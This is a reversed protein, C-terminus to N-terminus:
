LDTYKKSNGKSKEIPYKKANKELKRTFAISIDISAEEVFQVIAILVHVLLGEIENRKELLLQRGTGDLAEELFMSMLLSAKCSIIMSQKELTGGYSCEVLKKFDSISTERDTKEILVPLSVSAAHTLDISATNAFCLVWFFCDALEDEVSERKELLVRQGGDTPQCFLFLELLEGAEVVLGMSDIKPSHFQYWDRELLFTDVAQRLDSLTTKSDTM